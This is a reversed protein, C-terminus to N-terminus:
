AKTDTNRYGGAVYPSGQRRLFEDFIKLAHQLKKLNDGTREYAYDMPLIMYDYVRRQYTSLTFALRHHVVSRATPCKPYFTEDKGYKETLYQIIAV